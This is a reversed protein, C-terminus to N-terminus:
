PRGFQGPVDGLQPLFEGRKNRAGRGMGACGVGVTNGGGHVPEFEFAAEILRAGLLGHFVDDAPSCYKARNGRLRGDDGLAEEVDSSCVDSSWDCDFITLRRRSPFFFSLLSTM